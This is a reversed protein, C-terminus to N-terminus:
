LTLRRIKKYNLKIKFLKFKFLSITKFYITNLYVQFKLDNLLSELSDINQNMKDVKKEIAVIKENQKLDREDAIRITELLASTTMNFARQMEDM